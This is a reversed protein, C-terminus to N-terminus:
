KNHKRKRGKKMSENIKKKKKKRKEDHLKTGRYTAIFTTVM